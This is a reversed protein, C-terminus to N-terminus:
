CDELPMSLYWALEESDPTSPTGPMHQVTETEALQETTAETREATAETEALHTVAPLQSADRGATSSGVSADGCIAAQILLFYELNDEKRMTVCATMVEPCSTTSSSAGESLKECRRAARKQIEAEKEELQYWAAKENEWKQWAIRRNKKKEEDSSDVAMATSVVEAQAERKRKLVEPRTLPLGGALGEEKLKKLQERAKQVRAHKIWKICAGEPPACPNGDGDFYGIRPKKAAYKCTPRLM